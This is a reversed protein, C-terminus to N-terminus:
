LPRVVDAFEHALDERAPCTMPGYRDQEPLDRRQGPPGAGLEDTCRRIGTRPAEDTAQITRWRGM